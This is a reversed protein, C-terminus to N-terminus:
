RGVTSSAAGGALGLYTATDLVVAEACPNRVALTPIHGAEECPAPDTDLGDRQNLEVLVVAASGAAVLVPLDIYKVSRLRALV